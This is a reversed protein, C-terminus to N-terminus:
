WLIGLNQGITMLIVGWLMWVVQHIIRSVLGVDDKFRIGIISDIGLAIASGGILVVAFVFINAAQM